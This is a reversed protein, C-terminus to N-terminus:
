ARSETARSIMRRIVSLGGITILVLTSYFILLILYVGTRDRSYATLDTLVSLFEPVGILDAAPSAKTANILFAALQPWALVLASAALGGPTAAIRRADRIAVGAYCGNYFGLVVIAVLLSVPASYQTIGGVVIYGFFMLLPMPTTQGISALTNAAVRVIALRSSGARGLIFGFGATALVSGVVLMLSYEIGNVLLDLMTRSKLLGLDVPVGTWGLVLTEIATATDAIASRTDGRNSVVPPEACGAVPRSAADLCNAGSWLAHQETLYSTDLHHAQAIRILTGDQHFGAIVMSLLDGLRNAGKAVVMGWPLPVFSFHIKYQSAWAPDALQTAFFTDDQVIFECRGLRQGDLLDKPTDFALVRVHHQAFLINSSAGTTLCVSRGVLDAWGVSPRSAAGIVATHSAYYHPLIFRAQTDRLMDHGLTAIVLDVDGAAVAPIRSKPTVSTTTLRVRLFEAVARAVDAEFGAFQGVEDRVSFAPYDTRLGVRLEGRGLIRDLQDARDDVLGPLAQRAAALADRAAAISPALDSAAASAAGSEAAGAWARAGIAFMALQVAIAGALIRGALRAKRSM